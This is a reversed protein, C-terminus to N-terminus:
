NLKQQTPDDDHHNEHVSLSSVSQQQQGKPHEKKWDEIIWYWYEAYEGRRKRGESWIFEGGKRRSKGGSQINRYPSRELAGKLLLLLLMMLMPLLLMMMMTM